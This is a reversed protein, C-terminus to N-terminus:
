NKIIELFLWHLVNLHGGTLYYGSFFNSVIGIHLHDWIDSARKFIMLFIKALIVMITLIEVSGAKDPAALFKRYGKLGGM